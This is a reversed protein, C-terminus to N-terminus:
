YTATPLRRRRFAVHYPLLKVDLRPEEALVRHTYSHSHTTLVVIL